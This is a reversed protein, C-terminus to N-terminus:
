VNEKVEKKEECRVTITYKGCKNEFEVTSLSEDYFHSNKIEGFNGINQILFMWIRKM